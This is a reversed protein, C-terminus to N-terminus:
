SSVCTIYDLALNVYSLLASVGGRLMSGCDYARITTIICKCQWLYLRMRWATYHRIEAVGAQPAVPNCHLAQLALSALRALGAQVPGTPMCTTLVQWHMHLVTM